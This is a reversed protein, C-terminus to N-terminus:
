DNLENGINLSNPICLSAVLKSLSVLVNEMNFTHIPSSNRENILEDTLLM